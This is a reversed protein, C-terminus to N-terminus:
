AADVRLSGDGLMGLIVSSETAGPGYGAFLNVDQLVITQEASSVPDATSTTSVKIVTDLGANSIDIFSLLNGIGGGGIQNEGSLLESLDLRDGNVTGNFNHVFGQVTDSGSEGALWQYTDNGSGGILLDDGTGGVLTDNGGQGYLIDNGAGGDLIDNGGVSGEQGFDVHDDAILTSLQSNTLGSNATFFAAWGGDLNDAHISDGFIVDNGSGGKLVDDGVANAAYLPNLDALVKALGGDPVITAEGAGSDVSNLNSLTPGTGVGIAEILFGANALATVDNVTDTVGLLENMAIASGTNTVNNGSVNVYATPDGDSIFIAQNIVNPGTLLNGSNAWVLGKQLAAEYNTWDDAVLANIAAKADALGTGAKIDFTGRSVADSDFDVIHVRVAQALSVGLTTLLANVSTKLEAMRNNSSMSGSTDLILLLNLSKGSPTSGGVDGILVDKGGVGVIEGGPVTDFPSAIFHPVTSNAGDSVNQGVVLVSQDSRICIELNAPDKDGDGDVLQYTFLQKVAGDDGFTAPPLNAKAVFSFKGVDAGQLDVKLTGLDTNLTLVKTAADFSSTVSGV